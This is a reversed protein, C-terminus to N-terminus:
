ILYHIIATDVRGNLLIGAAFSLINLLASVGLAKKWQFGCLLKLVYAEIILAAVELIILVVGYYGTGLLLLSAALLLNLAPNTLLNCLFTYYVFDRRRFILAMVTGEIIVTLLFCGAFVVYIM